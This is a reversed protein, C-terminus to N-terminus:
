QNEHMRFWCRRYEGPTVGVIRRFVKMFYKPDSFGSQHAIDEIKADTNLLLQQATTLRLQRIYVAPTMGTHRRFLETLYSPHYHYVRALDAICIDESCARQRLEERIHEIATHTGVSVTHTETEYASRICEQSLEQLLVTLYANCIRARADRDRYPAESADILQRFLVRFKETHQLKGYEPLVCFGRNAADTLRCKDTVPHLGSLPLYFHCWFHSQGGYAAAYGRHHHQPFLLMFNGPELLYERDDQAIPYFGTDGLLLVASDLIRDPHIADPPATFHGATAFAIPTENPFRLVFM